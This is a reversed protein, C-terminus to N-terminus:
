WHARFFKILVLHGHLSKSDFVNGKDDPATFHPMSDGVKIVNASAEQPSIAITFPLLLGIFIAVAAAVGGLLGTRKIYASVGLAVAVLFVVVFLTRNEPIDVQRIHYGWTLFTAVALALASIGLKTGTKM